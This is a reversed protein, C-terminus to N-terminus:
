GDNCVYAGIIAFALLRLLFAVFIKLFFANSAILQTLLDFTRNIGDSFLSIWDNHRFSAFANLHQRNIAIANADIHRGREINGFDGDRLPQAHTVSQSLPLRESLSAAVLHHFKSAIPNFPVFM